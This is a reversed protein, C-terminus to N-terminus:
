GGFRRCWRGSARSARRTGCRCGRVGRCAAGAGRVSQALWGRRSVCPHAGACGAARGRVLFRRLRTSRQRRCAACLDGAVRPPHRAMRGRFRPAAGRPKSRIGGAREPQGARFGIPRRGARRRLLSRVFAPRCGVAVCSVVRGLLAGGDIGPPPALALRRATGRATCWGLAPGPHRRGRGLGAARAATRFRGGAGGDPVRRHKMTTLAPRSENWRVFAEAEAAATEIDAGIAAEMAARYSELAPSPINMAAGQELVYRLLRPNGCTHRSCGVGHAAVSEVHERLLRELTAADTEWYGKRITEVMRGTIDQWAHPSHEDFFAKM